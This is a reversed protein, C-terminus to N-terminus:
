KDYGKNYAMEHARVHYFCVKEYKINVVLKSM